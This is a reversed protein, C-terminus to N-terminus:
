FRVYHYVVAFIADTITIVFISTVIASTTAAGVSEAGGRVQFGRLCGITAIEIGFVLSKLLGKLVDTVELVKYAQNFFVKPTLDLSIVSVVLGGLIGLFDAFLTLCPMVLAVALIRPSVLYRIPDIGMVSLADVEENVRMTGLHAAFAAGSRGAVIIATMLPGMELCISLSVLDAVFVNAGFKRLQIAAQFALVAGMLFSLMSVIPLADTGSKDMLKTLSEWNSKGPRTIDQGFAYVIAGIFTLIQVANDKIGQFGRGIQAIIGPEPRPALVGPGAGPPEVKDIMRVTDPPANMLKFSNRNQLCHSKIQLLLAKGASDLYNVKELDAVVNKLPESNLSKFIDVRAPESNAVTLNGSIKILLEDFSRSTVEISYDRSHELKQELSSVEM